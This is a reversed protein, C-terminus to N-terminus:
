ENIRSRCALNAKRWLLGKGRIPLEDAKMIERTGGSFLFM